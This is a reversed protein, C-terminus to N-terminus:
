ELISVEVGTEVNWIKVLNDQSGSAVQKGDPSFDICIVVGSHGTLTCVGESSERTRQDDELKALKVRLRGLVGDAPVDLSPAM